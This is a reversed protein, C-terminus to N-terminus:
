RKNRDIGASVTMSEYTYAHTAQVASIQRGEWIELELDQGYGGDSSWVVAGFPCRKSM